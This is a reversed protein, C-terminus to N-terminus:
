SADRELKRALAEIRKKFKGNMSARGLRLSEVFLRSSLSTPQLKVSVAMRTIRPSLPVLDIELLGELGGIKGKSAVRDPASYEEIETKLKRARGRYVFLIMWGQGPGKQAHDGTRSVEAGNRLLEREIVDFETIAAFVEEIPRAVDERTEFRM